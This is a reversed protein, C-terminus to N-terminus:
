VELGSELTGKVNALVCVPTPFSFGMIAAHTAGCATENGQKHYSRRTATM